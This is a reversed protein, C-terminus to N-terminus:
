STRRFDEQLADLAARDPLGDHPALRYRLSLGAQDIRVPGDRCICPNLMHAFRVVHWSSPPNLPHDLVAAGAVSGDPARTSFDYWPRSPWNRDPVDPDSDPRDLSGSSDSIIIEGRPRARYCFGGFPQRGILVQRAQAPAYRYHYDIVPLGKVVRTRIRLQERLIDDQEAKWLNVAEIVTGSAGSSVRRASVPVIVRGEKPARAGWGWWDGNRVGEAQIWACFVGRHHPHDAAGVDTIVEGSPTWVPHSYDTFPVAPAREGQPPPGFLYRVLPKGDATTALIFSPAPQGEARGSLALLGIGGTALQLLARRERHM